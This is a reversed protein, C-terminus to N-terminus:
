GLHVEAADNLEEEVLLPMGQPTVAGLTGDPHHPIDGDEDSIVTSVHPRVAIKEPQALIVEFWLSNGTDRRVGEAGGALAPASRKVVPLCDPLSAVIPPDVAQAPAGLSAVVDTEVVKAAEILEPLNGGVVGSSYVSAPHVAGLVLEEVFKTVRQAPQRKKGFVQTMDRGFHMRQALTVLYRSCGHQLKTEGIGAGM